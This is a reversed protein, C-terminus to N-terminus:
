ASSNPSRPTRQGSTPIQLWWRRFGAPEAAVGIAQGLGDPGLDFDHNGLTIADYGLLSMLQLEGGTERIAAGFATGMSWDGADLVLVPGQDKRAVKRAAILTALRAFGGRRTTTSNSPLTTRPPGWGSLIRTSTTPTCSPLPRRGTRRRPQSQLSSSRPPAIASGALFERRSLVEHTM